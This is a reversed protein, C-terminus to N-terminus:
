SEHIDFLVDVMVSFREFLDEAWSCRAWFGNAGASRLWLGLHGTQRNSSPENSTWPAALDM